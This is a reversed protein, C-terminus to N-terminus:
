ALYLPVCLEQLLLLLLMCCVAVCVHPMVSDSRAVTVVRMAPDGVAAAAQVIEALKLGAAIRM